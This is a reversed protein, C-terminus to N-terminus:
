KRRRARPPYVNWTEASTGPLQESRIYGGARNRRSRTWRRFASRDTLMPWLLVGLVFLAGLIVVGTEVGILM